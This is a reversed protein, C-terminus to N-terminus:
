STVGGLTCHRRHVEELVRESHGVLRATSFQDVVRARAARAAAFPDRAM